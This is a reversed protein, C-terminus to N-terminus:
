RLIELLRSNLERLRLNVEPMVQGYAQAGLMATSPAEAPV